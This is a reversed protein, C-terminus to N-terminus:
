VQKKGNVLSEIDCTWEFNLVLDDWKTGAVKSDHELQRQFTAYEQDILTLALTDAKLLTQLMIDTQNDDLRGIDIKAINPHAAVQKDYIELM